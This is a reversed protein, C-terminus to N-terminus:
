KQNLIIKSLEVHDAVNVEGDGNLDGKLASLMVTMSAMDSLDYGNKSAYVTITVTPLSIGKNENNYIGEYGTNSSVKYHYDVGETACEFKLFGNDVKITPTACKPSGASEIPMIAMFEERWMNHGCSGDCNQYDNMLTSPVYLIANKVSGINEHPNYWNSGEIAPVVSSYCYVASLNICDSFCEFGVTTVSQPIELSVLGTCGAFAYFGLFTVGAPIVTNKCGVLLTLSGDPQIFIIANCNNPSVFVSNGPDVKISALSSCNRFAFNGIETVSSPIVISTLNSCGRFAAGGIIEVNDPITFSSFTCDQFAFYGIESITNPLSVSTLNKCSYFGEVTTVGTEVVVNQISEKYNDWPTAYLLPDEVYHNSYSAMKGSGSITLTHTSEVWTWTVNGENGYYGCTGSDDANAAMPLLAMMFLFFQKKM